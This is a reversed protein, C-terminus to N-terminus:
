AALSLRAPTKISAPIKYQSPYIPVPASEISSRRPTRSCAL